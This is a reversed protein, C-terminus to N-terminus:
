WTHGTIVFTVCHAGVQVSIVISVIVSPFVIFLPVIQM